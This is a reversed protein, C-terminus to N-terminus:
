WGEPLFGRDVAYEATALWHDRVTQPLASWTPMVGGMFNKWAAHDGYENYLQQAGEEVMEWSPTACSPSGKNAKHKSDM